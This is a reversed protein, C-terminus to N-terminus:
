VGRELSRLGTESALIVRTAMGLFLGHGVVGPRNNLTDALAAADSIGDPFWLRALYNGNDTVFAGGREDRWLEARCGLSNLWRLTAGWEFPVVEVPLPGRGLRAVAKSEDAIIVLRRAHIEVIKERLLAKGLGKILDLRPDVEDAGDVALDLEPADDLTALPIGLSRAQEASAASTPVGVVGNLRGAQIAAGLLDIFCASTSGSGLGLHMGSHVEELAIQAAKQKLNV